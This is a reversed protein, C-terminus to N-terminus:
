MVPLTNWNRCHEQSTGVQKWIGEGGTIAVTSAGDGSWAFNRTIREITKMASEPVGQVKALYQTMGGIIMQTILRRGETTPHNAEWRKLSAAIKEITPTWPTAQEVGNGIWAGLTRVPQGERAIKINAPIPTANEHTKRTEILKARYEPTGIPIIETKAINFAAGSVECWPTLAHRELNEFDDSKDLYTTADDAFFKCKISENANEIEIGKLPPARITAALPEIGLDFLLCSLTDGQRVGRNVSYAESIIGNIVVSTSTDHYLHQITKIYHRPLDFKELVKWLYPHLIKDYAKEQDLMVLVGNREMIRGFDIALKALKVQDFISRGKLFGAQDRHVLTPAVEALKNALAKTITKYDTNLVTIPRYNAVNNREGKKYIPCM